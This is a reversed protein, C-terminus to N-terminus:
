SGHRVADIVNLMQNHIRGNSAVIEKDRVSFRTGSFDSLRGGAEKVILSGLAPAEIGL